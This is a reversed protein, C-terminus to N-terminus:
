QEITLFDFTAHDNASWWVGDYPLQFYLSYRQYEEKDLEKKITSVRAAPESLM